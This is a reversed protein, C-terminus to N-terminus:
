TQRMNILAAELVGVRLIENGTWPITFSASFYIAENILIGYFPRATFIVKQKEGGVFFNFCCILNKSHLAVDCLKAIIFSIKAKRERIKYLTIPESKNKGPHFFGLSSFCFCCNKGRKLGWYRTVRDWWRDTNLCVGKVKSKGRM